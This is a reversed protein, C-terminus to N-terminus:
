HVKDRFVGFIGREIELDGRTVQVNAIVQEYLRNAVNQLKKAADAESLPEADDLALSLELFASVPAKAAAGSPGHASEGVGECTKGACSGAGAMSGSSVVPAPSSEEGADMPEKDATVALEAAPLTLLHLGKNARTAAKAAAMANKNERSKASFAINVRLIHARLRKRM